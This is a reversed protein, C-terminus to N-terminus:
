VCSSECSRLPTWAARQCHRHYHEVGVGRARWPCRGCRVGSGPSTWWSWCCRKWLTSWTQLPWGEGMCRVRHARSAFCHVGYHGNLFLSRQVRKADRAHWSCRGCAALVNEAARRAGVWTAAVAACLKIDHRLRLRTCSKLADVAHRRKKLPSHRSARAVGRPRLSSALDVLVLLLSAKPV